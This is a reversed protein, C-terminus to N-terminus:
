DLAKFSYGQEKLDKIVDKFNSNNEGLSQINDIIM